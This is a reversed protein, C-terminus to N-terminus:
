EQTTQKQVAIYLTKCDHYCMALNWNCSWSTVPGEEVWRTKFFHLPFVDFSAERIYIDRIAASEELINCICQTFLTWIHCKKQDTNEQMWVSYPSFRLIEGYLGFAPFYPASFVGYKSVKWGTNKVEVWETLM